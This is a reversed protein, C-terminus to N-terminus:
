AYSTQFTPAVSFFLGPSAMGSTGPGCRATARASEMPMTAGLMISTTLRAAVGCCPTKTGSCTPLVRDGGGFLTGDVLERPAWRSRCRCFADADTCRPHSCTVFHCFTNEVGNRSSPVGDGILGGGKKPTTKREQTKICGEADAVHKEGACGSDCVKGLAGAHM